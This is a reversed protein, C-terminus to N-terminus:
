HRESVTNNEFWLFPTVPSTTFHVYEAACCESLSFCKVPQLPRKSGARKFSQCCELLRFCKVPPASSDPGLSRLSQGGAIRLVPIALLSKPRMCRLSSQHDELCAAFIGKRDKLSRPGEFRRFRPREIAVLKECHVVLFYSIILCSFLCLTSPCVRFSLLRLGRRTGCFQTSTV